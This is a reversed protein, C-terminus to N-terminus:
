CGQRLLQQVLAREETDNTVEGNLHALLGLAMLPFRATSLVHQMRTEAAM